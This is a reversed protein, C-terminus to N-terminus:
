KEIKTVGFSAAGISTVSNPITLGTLGEVNYFVYNGIHTVNNPIVLKGKLNNNTFISYGTDSAYDYQGTTSNYTPYSYDKEINLGLVVLEDWTKILKGNDNYLGAQENCYGITRSVDGGNYDISYGNICFSGNTVNNSEDFEM